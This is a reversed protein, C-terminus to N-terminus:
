ETTTQAVTANKTDIMMLLRAVRKRTANVPRRPSRKIYANRMRTNVWIDRCDIDKKVSSFAPTKIVRM